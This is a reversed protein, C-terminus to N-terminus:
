DRRHQLRGAARPDLHDTVAGFPVGAALFAAAAFVQNGTGQLLRLLALDGAGAAGAEVMCVLARRRAWGDPISRLIAALAGTSQDDLHDVQGRVVRLAAGASLGEVERALQHTAVAGPVPRRHPRDARSAHAALVESPREFTPLPGGEGARRTMRQADHVQRELEEVEGAHTRERAAQEAEVDLLRGELALVQARAEELAAAAQQHSETARRAETEAEGLRAELRAIRQLLDQDIAGDAVGRARAASAPQPAVPAAPAGPTDPQAVGAPQAPQNVVDDLGAATAAAAAVTAVTRSRADPSDLSAALEALDEGDLRGVLDLVARSQEQTFDLGTEAQIRPVLEPAARQAVAVALDRKAAADLQLFASLTTAGARAREFRTGRSMGQALQLVASPTTAM